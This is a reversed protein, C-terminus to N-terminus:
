KYFASLQGVTFSNNTTLLPPPYFSYSDIVLLATPFLSNILQSVIILQSYRHPISVILTTTFFATPFLYNVLQSSFASGILSGPCIVQSPLITPFSSM